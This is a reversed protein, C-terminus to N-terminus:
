PQKPKSMGRKVRAPLVFLFEALALAFDICRKADDETPLPANDDAHRQDNADLRIDHAWAKMSDTILHNTAAADIRSYLSGDKLGLSKLMSDVASACVLQSAVPSHISEQAQVLFTRARDPVSSDVLDNGSPYM